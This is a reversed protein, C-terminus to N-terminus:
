LATAESFAIHAKSDSLLVNKTLTSPRQRAFSSLIRSSYEAQRVYAGVLHARIRSRQNLSVLDNPDIMTELPCPESQVEM